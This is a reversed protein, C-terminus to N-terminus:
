THLLNCGLVDPGQQHLRDRWHQLRHPLRRVVDLLVLREISRQPGIKLHSDNATPLLAPVLALLNTLIHQTIHSVRHCAGGEVAGGVGPGAGGIALLAGITPAPGPWTITWPKSPTKSAINRQFVNESYRTLLHKHHGVLWHPSGLGWPHRHGGLSHDTDADAINQGEEM